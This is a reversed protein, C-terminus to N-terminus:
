FCISVLIFLSALTRRDVLDSTSPFAFTILKSSMSTARAARAAFSTMLQEQNLNDVAELLLLRHDIAFPLERPRRPCARRM